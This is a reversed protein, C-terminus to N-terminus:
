NPHHFEWDISFYFMAVLGGVPLPIVLYNETYIQHSMGRIASQIGTEELPITTPKEDVAFCIQPSLGGPLNIAM